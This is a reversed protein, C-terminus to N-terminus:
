GEDGLWKQFVAEVEEQSAFNGREAEELGKDIEKLQWLQLEYYSEIAREALEAPTASSKEALKALKHCSEASLSIPDNTEM